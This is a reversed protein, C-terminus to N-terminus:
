GDKFKSVIRCNLFKFPPDLKMTKYQLKLISRSEFKWSKTICFGNPTSGPSQASLSIIQIILNVRIIGDYDLTSPDRGYLIFQPHTKISWSWESHDNFEICKIHRLDHQHLKEDNQSNEERRFHFMVNASFSCTVTMGSSVPIGRKAWISSSVSQKHHPAASAAWGLQLYNTM